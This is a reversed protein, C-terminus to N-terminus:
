LRLIFRIRPMSRLFIASLIGTLKSQVRIDSDAVEEKCSILHDLTCSAPATDWKHCQRARSYAHHQGQKTRMALHAQSSM